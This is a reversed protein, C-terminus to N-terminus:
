DGGRPPPKGKPPLPKGAKGGAGGGGGGKGGGGGGGGGGPGAFAGAVDLRSSFGGLAGPLVLSASLVALTRWDIRVPRPATAREADTDRGRLSSALRKTKLTM